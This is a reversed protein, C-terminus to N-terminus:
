RQWSPVGIVFPSHSTPKGVHNFFSHSQQTSQSAQLYFPDTSTFLSSPCSEIPSSMGSTTMPIPAPTPPLRTSSGHTDGQYHPWPYANSSRPSDLTVMDEVTREEDMEESDHWAEDISQRQVSSSSRKRTHDIHEPLPWVFTTSSPTRATPTTCHQVNTPDRRTINVAMPHPTYLTWVQLAALDIAEQGIHNASLSAVLDDVSLSM